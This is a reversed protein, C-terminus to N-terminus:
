HGVIAKGSQFQLSEDQEPQWTKWYNLAQLPPFAGNFLNEFGFNSTPAGLHPNCFDGNALYAQVEEWWEDISVEVGAVQLRCLSVEDGFKMHSCLIPTSELTGVLDPFDVHQIKVWMFELTGDNSEFMLNVSRDVFWEHPKEQYLLCDSYARKHAHKIYM